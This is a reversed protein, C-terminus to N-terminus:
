KHQEITEKDQWEWHVFLCIYLIDFVCYEIFMYITYWICLVWYVYIYYILYVISLLCIYLIDFVCYEIFMFVEKMLWDSSLMRIYPSIICKIWHFKSFNSFFLLQEHIYKKHGTSHLTRLLM